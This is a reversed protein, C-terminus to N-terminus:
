INIKEQSHFDFAKLALTGKLTVLVASTGNLMGYAIEMLRGNYSDQM